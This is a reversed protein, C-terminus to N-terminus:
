CRGGASLVRDLTGVRPSISSFSRSSSSTLVGAGVPPAGQMAPSNLDSEVDEELSQFFSLEATTRKIRKENAPRGDTTAELDSAALGDDHKRYNM